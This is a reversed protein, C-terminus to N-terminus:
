ITEILKDIDGTRSEELVALLLASIFSEIFTEGGASPQLSSEHPIQPPHGLCNM